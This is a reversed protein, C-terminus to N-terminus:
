KHCCPSQGGGLEEQWDEVDIEERMGDECLESGRKEGRSAKGFM